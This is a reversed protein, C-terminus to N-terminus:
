RRVLTSGDGRALDLLDPHDFPERSGTRVAERVRQWALHRTAVRVPISTLELALAMGLRHNGELTYLFAGARDIHVYVYTIAPNALTPTRFGQQQMAKFLPDYVSRYYEALEEINRSGKFRAAPDALRPSYFYRFLDTEEWELGHIYRQRMSPIKWAIDVPRRFAVDWNGNLILGMPWKRPPVRLNGHISRPDVRIVGYPRAVARFRARNLLHTAATAVPNYSAGSRSKLPNYDFHRTVYLGLRRAQAVAHKPTTM